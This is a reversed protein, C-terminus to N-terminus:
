DSHCCASTKTIFEACLRSSKIRLVRFHDVLLTAL